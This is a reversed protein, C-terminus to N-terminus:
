KQPLVPLSSEQSQESQSQAETTESANQLNNAQPRGIRDERMKIVGLALALVFFATVMWKTIKVLVENTKAGFVGMAFDSGFMGSQAGSGSQMLILPILLIVVIIFLVLFVTFM